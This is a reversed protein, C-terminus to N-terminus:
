PIERGVAYCVGGYAIFGLSEGPELTAASGQVNINNTGGGSVDSLTLNYANFNCITFKYGDPIDVGVAVRFRAVTDTADGEGILRVIGSNILASGTAITSPKAEEAYWLTNTGPVTYALKNDVILRCESEADILTTVSAAALGEFRVNTCTERVRIGASSPSSSFYPDTMHINVCGPNVYLGYVATDVFRPAVIDVFSSTGLLIGTDSFGTAGLEIRSNEARAAIEAKLSSYFAPQNVGGDGLCNGFVECNILNFRYVTNSGETALAIGHGWNQQILCNVLDIIGPRGLSLSARGGEDFYMGHGGCYTINVQELKSCTGEGYWVLGDAPQNTIEIRQVHSFTMSFTGELFQIGYDESNGDVSADPATKGRPCALRRASGALSSLALDTIRCRSAAVRIVPGGRFNALINCGSRGAGILTCGATEMEITASTIYNPSPAYVTGSGVANIAAQIAIGDIEETLSTAHPYVVQAAGLTAFFTSLPRSVGDGVAGFDNASVFDRLKSQVTRAVAGTGSAIHGILSSGESADTGNAFVESIEDFGAEVASFEAKLSASKAIQGVIPSFSRTYYPNTM